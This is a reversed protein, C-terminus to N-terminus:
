ETWGSRNAQKWTTSFIKGKSARLTFQLILVINFFIIRPQASGNVNNKPILGCNHARGAGLSVEAKVGPGSRM